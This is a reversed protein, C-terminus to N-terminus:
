YIEPDGDANEYAIFYVYVSSSGISSDTYIKNLKVNKINIETQTTNFPIVTNTSNQLTVPDLYINVNSTPSGNLWFKISYYYNPNLMFSKYDSSITASGLLQINKDKSSLLRKIDKLETLISSNIMTNVDNPYETSLNSM